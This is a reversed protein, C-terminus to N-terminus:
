IMERAFDLACWEGDATMGWNYNEDASTRTIELVEGFAAAGTIEAALSPSKRKNLGDAATVRYRHIHINSNDEEVADQRGSIGENEEGSNELASAEAQAYNGCEFIREDAIDMDVYGGIGDLSGVSSYQWIISDGDYELTDNWQAAWKKLKEARRDLRNMFWYPTSYIGCGFGNDELEGCFELAIDTLTKSDQPLTDDELDLWVGCSIKKGNLLRLAHAAESKAMETNRAYSYLYVGYPIGLKECKESVSNFVRDDQTSFDSGYGLRIIIFSIVGILKELSEVINFESIDIGKFVKRYAGKGASSEIGDSSGSCYSSDTGDYDGYTINNSYNEM